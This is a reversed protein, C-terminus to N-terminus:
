VAQRKRFWGKKKPPEETKTVEKDETYLLLTQNDEEGLGEAANLIEKVIQEKRESKELIIKRIEEEKLTGFAGDSGLLVIDGPSFTLSSVQPVAEKYKGIYDTLMHKKQMYTSSNKTIKGQRVLEEAVNQDKSIKMLCKDKENYYYAPSDGCNALILNHFFLIGTTLTTGGEIGQNTLEQYVEENIKSVAGFSFMKLQELQETISQGLFDRSMTLKQLKLVWKEIALSSALEGCSLGGMGDAVLFVKIMAEHNIRYEMYFYHDQNVKRKNKRSEFFVAM